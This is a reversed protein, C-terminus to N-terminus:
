QQKRRQKKLYLVFFIIAEGAVIPEFVILWATMNAIATMVATALMAILTAVTALTYTNDGNARPLKQQEHKIEPEDDLSLAILWDAATFVRDTTM